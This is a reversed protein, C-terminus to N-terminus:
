LAFHQVSQCFHTKLEVGVILSLDTATWLVSGREEDDAEEIKNDSMDEKMWEKEYSSMRSISKQKEDWIYRPGKKSCESSGNEWESRNM